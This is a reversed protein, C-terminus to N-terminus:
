LEELRKNILEQAEIVKPWTKGWSTIAEEKEAENFLKHYRAIYSEQIENVKNFLESNYQIFLTRILNGKVLYAKWEKIADYLEETVKEKAEEYRTHQKEALDNIRNQMFAMLALENRM